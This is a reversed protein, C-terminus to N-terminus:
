RSPGHRRRRASITRLLSYAHGRQSERGPAVREYWDNVDEVSIEDIPMKGFTPYLTSELVYEYHDRTTPRLPQGRTKRTSLWRQAYGKFTPVAKRAVSREVIDPAWVNLQIEARRAALWAIADDKSDFTFM